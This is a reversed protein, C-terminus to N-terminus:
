GLGKFMLYITGCAYALLLESLKHRNRVQIYPFYQPAIQTLATRLRLPGYPIEDM